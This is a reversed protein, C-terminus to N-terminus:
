KLLTYNEAWFVTTFFSMKSDRHIGGFVCVGDVRRGKHNKKGFKSEDIEVIVGTGKIINNEHKQLITDCVERAYNYLDVITGECIGLEHIVFEQNCKYVWFYTIYLIQESTLNNNEFLSGKQISM